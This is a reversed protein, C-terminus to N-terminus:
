NIPYLITNKMWNSATKRKISQVSLLAMKVADYVGAPLTTCQPEYM